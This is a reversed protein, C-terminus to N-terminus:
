CNLCFYILIHIIHRRPSCLFVSLLLVMLCVSSTSFYYVIFVFDVTFQFLYFMWTNIIVCHVAFKTEWAFFIYIYVSVMFLTWSICVSSFFHRWWLRWPKLLKWSSSGPFKHWSHKYPLHHCLHLSSLAQFILVHAIHLLLPLLVAILIFIIVLHRSLSAAFSLIYAVCQFTLSFIFIFVPSSVFVPVHPFLAM